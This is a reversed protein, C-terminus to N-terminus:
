PHKMHQFLSKIVPVMIKNVYQSDFSLKGGLPEIISRIRPEIEKYKHLIITFGSSIYKVFDPHETLLYIHKLITEPDDNPEVGTNFIFDSFVDASLFIYADGEKTPVSVPFFCVYELPKTAKM